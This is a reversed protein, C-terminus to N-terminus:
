RRLPVVSEEPEELEELEVRPVVLRLLELMSRPEDLLREPVELELPEVERVTSRDPDLPVLREDAEGGAVGARVVGV